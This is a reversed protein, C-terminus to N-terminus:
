FSRVGCHRTVVTMLFRALRFGHEFEGFDSALEAMCVLVISLEAFEHRIDAARSTM